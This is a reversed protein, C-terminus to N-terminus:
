GSALKKAKCLLMRDSAVMPKMGESLASFWEIGSFGSSELVAEFEERSHLIIPHISHFAVAQEGDHGKIDYDLELYKESRMTPTVTRNLSVDGQTYERTVVVPPEALTEKANWVEFLLPANDKLRLAIASFFAQLEDLEEICNAVNFLSIACDFYREQLESLDNCSLKLSAPNDAKKGFEIMPASKDVGHVFSYHAALLREHTGIGCGVSLVKASGGIDHQELVEHLRAVEGAYDKHQTLISYYQAFDQIYDTM